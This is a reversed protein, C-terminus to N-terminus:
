GETLLQYAGYAISAYAAYEVLGGFLLIFVGIAILGLGGHSAKENLRDLIYKM